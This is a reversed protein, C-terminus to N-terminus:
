PAGEGVRATAGASPRPYTRGPHRHAASPVKGKATDSRSTRLGWITRDLNLERAEAKKVMGRFYGGPTTRFHEPDKTSVIAVAIAAGVRGLLICAEGWLPKSIDLESRLWDAAEIIDPWTPNMTRLYPRLRPALQILEPPALKLGAAHDTRETPVAPQTPPVAGQGARSSEQHASVTDQIPNLVENTPTIHPRNETRMPVTEVARLLAELRERALNQRAELALVQKELADPSSASRLARVLEQTERTFVAWSDDHFGYQQVTEVIQVIGKRAITARRRLRGILARELREEEALSVFEAHRASLPALDFGYAEVIRGAKDRRGYRKGNPSDRMTLLGAEILMRNIAKVQTASLGLASQQMEASPWVIPQGERGWDEPRTFRFLWDVAHVLRVSLGLRPAAAKFAALLQGPMSVGDPLGAFDDAVRNVKLLGPTLRRFGTPRGTFGKQPAAQACYEMDM